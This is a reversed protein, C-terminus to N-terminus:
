TYIIPMFINDLGPIEFMNFLLQFTFYLFLFWRQIGYLIGGMCVSFDVHWLDHLDFWGRTTVDYREILSPKM